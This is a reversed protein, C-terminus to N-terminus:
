HYIGTLAIRNSQPIRRGFQGALHAKGIRDGRFFLLLYYYTRIPEGSLPCQPSASISTSDAQTAVGARFNDSSMTDSHFTIM